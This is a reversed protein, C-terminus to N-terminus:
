TKWSKKCVTCYFFHTMGEDASRTQMSRDLVKYSGCECRNIGDRVKYTKEGQVIDEVTWGALLRRIGLEYESLAWIQEELNPDIGREILLARAKHRSMGVPDM